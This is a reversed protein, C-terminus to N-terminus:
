RVGRQRSRERRERRVELKDFLMVFFYLSDSQARVRDDAIKGLHEAWMEDIGLDPHKWVLFEIGGRFPDRFGFRLSRMKFSSSPRTKHDRLLGKYPNKWVGDM